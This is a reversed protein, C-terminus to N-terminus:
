RPVRTMHAPQGSVVDSVIEEQKTRNFRILLLGTVISAVSAVISLSSAMQAPSAFVVVQGVSTINSGSFNSLVVGPIALFGVNASLM